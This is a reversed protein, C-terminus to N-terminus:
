RLLLMRRWAQQGGATLRYFYLGSAVQNGRDDKGDWKLSYEGAPLHRKVLTRIEKGLLDYIVLTADNSRDMRFSINTEPNFPNPYNQKLEFNRIVEPEPRRSVGTILNHGTSSFKLTDIGAVYEKAAQFVSVPYVTLNAPSIGFLTQLYGVVRDSTVITYTSDPHV